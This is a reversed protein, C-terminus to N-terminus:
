HFFVRLHPIFFFLSFAQPPRSGCALTAGRSVCERRRGKESARSGRRLGHQGKSRLATGATGGAGTALCPEAHGCGRGRRPRRLRQASTRGRGGSSSSAGEERLLQWFCVWTKWLQQGRARTHPPGPPAWGPCSSRPGLGPAPAAPSTESECLSPGPGLWTGSPVPPAQLLGPDSCQAM